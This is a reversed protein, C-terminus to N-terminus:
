VEAQFVHCYGEGKPLGGSIMPLSPWELKLRLAEAAARHNELANNEYDWSLVISGGNCAAKIRAGRTNTPGLYRTVISQLAINSM